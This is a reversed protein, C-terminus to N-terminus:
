WRRRSTGKSAKFEEGAGRYYGVLEVEVTGKTGIYDTLKPGKGHRNKAGIDAANCHRSGM